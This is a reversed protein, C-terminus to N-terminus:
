FSVYPKDGTLDIQKPPSNERFAKVIKAEKFILQLSALQFQADKASSFTIKIPFKEKLITMEVGEIEPRLFPGDIIKFGTALTASKLKFKILEYGSDPSIFKPQWLRSISGFNPVVKFQILLIVGAIVLALLFKKLSM